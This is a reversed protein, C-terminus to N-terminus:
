AKKLEEIASELNNKQIDKTEATVTNLDIGLSTAMQGIKTYVLTLGDIALNMKVKIDDKIFDMKGVEQLVPIIEGVVKYTKVFTTKVASINSATDSLNCGAFTIASIIAVICMLKKM